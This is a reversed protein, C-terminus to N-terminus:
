DDNPGEGPAANAKILMDRVSALLPDISKAALETATIKLALTEKTIRAHQRREEQNSPLAKRLGQLFHLRRSVVDIAAFSAVSELDRIADDATQLDAHIRLQEARKQEIKMILDSGVLFDLSRYRATMPVAAPEAPTTTSPAGDTSVSPSQGATTLAEARRVPRLPLKSLLREILRRRQTLPAVTASLTDDDEEDAPLNQLRNLKRDLRAIREHARRADKFVGHFVLGPALVLSSALMFAVWPIWGSLSINNQLPTLAVALVLLLPPVAFEWSQRFTNTGEARPQIIKVFYMM